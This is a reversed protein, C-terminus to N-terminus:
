SQEKSKESANSKKEEVFADRNWVLGPLFRDKFSRISIYPEGLVDTPKPHTAM